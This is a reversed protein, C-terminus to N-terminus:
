FIQRLYASLFLRLYEKSVALSKDGFQKFDKANNCTHIYRSFTHLKFIWAM